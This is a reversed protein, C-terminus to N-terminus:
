PIRLDNWARRQRAFPMTAPVIGLQAVRNRDARASVLTGDTWGLERKRLLPLTRLDRLGAIENNTPHRANKKAPLPRADRNIYASVELRAIAIVTYGAHM